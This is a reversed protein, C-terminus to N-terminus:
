VIAGSNADPLGLYGRIWPEDPALINGAVLDKILAGVSSLRSDDLAGLHFTPRAADPGFNCAVLRDILQANVVAQELDRQLKQLYFGLVDMHIQGLANTNTGSTSDSTLTQGLISKAIARDLYSIAQEFGAEAGRTAELLAIQLDDPVVVASENHIAAVLSLFEMQQKKSYGKGSAYTGRVTPMGFKEMYKAWWRLLQEKVFWPRYAARLDSQGWPNEYAPMYTYVLFKDLPYVGGMAGRLGTLNLFPDCEFQFLAPDKAKLSHLGIKGDARLVWNIEVLSVGLALADLVDYLADLLTGRMQTLAQRVFQAIAQDDASTSAAQIDWGRSLVAFKKTALCAKVQPDGQMKRYTGFGDVGPLADGPYSLPSLAGLLSNIEGQAAALERLIPKPTATTKTTALTKKM